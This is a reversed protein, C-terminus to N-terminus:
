HNDSIQSQPQKYLTNCTAGINFLPCFKCSHSAVVTSLLLKAQNMIIKEFQLQNNLNM